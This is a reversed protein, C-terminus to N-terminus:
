KVTITFLSDSEGNETVSVFYAQAARHINMRYGGAVMQEQDLVFGDQKMKELLQGHVEDRNRLVHFTTASGGMGTNEADSPIPFEGPGAKWTIAAFPTTAASGSAVAADSANTPVTTIDTPRPPPKGCAVLLSLAVLARM